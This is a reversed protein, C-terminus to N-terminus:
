LNSLYYRIYIVDLFVWGRFLPIPRKTDQFQRLFRLSGSEFIKERKRLYTLGFFSENVRRM